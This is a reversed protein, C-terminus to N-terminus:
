LCLPLSLVSGVKQKDMRCRECKVLDLKRKKQVEMDAQYTSSTTYQDERSRKSSNRDSSHQYSGLSAKEAASPQLYLNPAAQQSSYMTENM